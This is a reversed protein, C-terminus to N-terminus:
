DFLSLPIRQHAFEVQSKMEANRPVRRFFSSRVNDPFRAWHNGEIVSTAHNMANASSESDRNGRARANGIVAVEEARMGEELPLRNVVFPLVIGSIDLMARNPLVISNCM